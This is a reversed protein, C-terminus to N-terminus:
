GRKKRYQASGSTQDNGEHDGHNITCIPLGVGKEKGITKDKKEALYPILASEFIHSFISVLAFILSYAFFFSDTQRNAGYVMAIVFPVILGASRGLIAFFSTSIFPRAQSM